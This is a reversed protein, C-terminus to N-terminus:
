IKRRHPRNSAAPESQKEEAVELPAVEGVSAPEPETVIVAAPELPPPILLSVRSVLEVMTAQTQTLLETQRNAQEQMGQIASELSNIRNRQQEIERQQEQWEDDVEAVEPPNEIQEIAAETRAEVIAAESEAVVTALEAQAIEADLRAEQLQQPDAEM